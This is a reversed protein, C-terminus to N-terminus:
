AARSRVVLPIVPATPRREHRLLTTMAALMPLSWLYFGWGFTLLAVHFAIAAGYAVQTRTGGLLVLVGVALEFAILVSIFAHHNPAVLSRWTDRVFPLYSGDAFTAYDDGRGLMLANVGAGAGLYLAAMARRGLRLAATRTRSRVAAVVVAVGCVVWIIPLM